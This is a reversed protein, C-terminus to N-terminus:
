SAEMKTAACTGGLELDVIEMYADVCSEFFQKGWGKEPSYRRAFIKPRGDESLARAASKKGGEMAQMWLCLLLALQFSAYAEWVLPFVVAVHVYVASLLGLM